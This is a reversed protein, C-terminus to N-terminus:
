FYIRANQLKVDKEEAELRLLFIREMLRYTEHFISPLDTLCRQLVEFIDPPMYSVLCKMLKLDTSVVYMETLSVLFRKFEALQLSEQLKVTLMERIQKLSLVYLDTNGLKLVEVNFNYFFGLQHEQEKQCRSLIPFYKKYIKILNLLINKGAEEM